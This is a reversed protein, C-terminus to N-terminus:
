FKGILVKLPSKNICLAIGYCITLALLLIFGIALYEPIIDLFSCYTGYIKMIVSLISIHLGYIVLSQKGLGELVSKKEIVKSFVIISVSGLISLLLFVPLEFISLNVHATIYPVNMNLALLLTLLGIYSLFAITGKKLNLGYKRFLEGINLFIVLVLAQSVHWYDHIHCYQFVVGVILCFVLLLYKYVMNTIKNKILWYINNAIFLASLFWYTGGYLIFTRFGLKCYERIDTVGSFILNIWMSIFGLCFAPIMISYFKKKIFIKFPKSFNSCMGTLVFFAPMFFSIYLVSLNDVNQMATSKNMELQPIHHLVVLIILLGKAIDVYHVRKKEM